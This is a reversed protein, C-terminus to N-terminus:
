AHCASNVKLVSHVGEELFSVVLPSGVIHSFALLVPSHATKQSSKHFHRRVDLLLAVFVELVCDLSDLTVGNELGVKFVNGLDLRQNIVVIEFSAYDLLEDWNEVNDSHTCFGRQLKKCFSPQERSKQSDGSLM